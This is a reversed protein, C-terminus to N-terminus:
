VLRRRQEGVELLQEGLDGVRRDVRDALFDHHAERRAEAGLAVQEALRGLVRVLEREVLRDQEVALQLRQAVDGVLLELRARDVDGPRDRLPGRSDLAREIADAGFGVVRDGLAHVDDDQGVPHHARAARRDGRQERDGGDVVVEHALARPQARPDDELRALGALHVVEGRQEAIARVRDVRIQHELREVPQDEVPADRTRPVLVAALDRQRGLLRGLVRDLRDPFAQQLRDRLHADGRDLGVAARLDELGDAELRRQDVPM